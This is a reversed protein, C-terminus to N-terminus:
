PVEGFSATPGDFTLADSGPAGDRVKAWNVEAKGACEQCLVTWEDVRHQYKDDAENPKKEPRHGLYYEQRYVFGVGYADQEIAGAQRLDSLTPRKDDRGEVGRNLQALLLVPCECDKAMQLVTGSAREISWTGGHKADQEEARMLNLHDIMVLGLGHKRRAARAKAAIQAPTQGATDDITLPLGALEKRAQVIANSLKTSKAAGGSKMAGLPVGAATALTRRGLQTASMELSLELVGHGARAANIAIQHGLSSKGMGPRGALVYVLGPELGGLRNDFARFGTSIGATEGRAAREMAAIAADMASDLTTTRDSTDGAAIRDFAASLKATLDRPAVGDYCGDRVQECLDILERQQAAEKITRAYESATGIAVTASLLSALLGSDFRSKLSVADVVRGAGVGERIAAYVAGLGDGAFDEPVLRGCRDLAKNNHLLAGLLAMEATVNAPPARMSLGFPLGQDPM